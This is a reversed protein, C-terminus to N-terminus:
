SLSSFGPTPSLKNFIKELMQFSVMDPFSFDQSYYSWFSASLDFVCWM